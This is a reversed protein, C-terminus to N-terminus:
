GKPPHPEAVDGPAAEPAPRDPAVVETRLIRLSQGVGRALAPLRTAGFVLLVVVLVILLHWGNLNAFM